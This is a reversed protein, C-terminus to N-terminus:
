LLLGFLVDKDSEAQKFATQVSVSVGGGEPSASLVPMFSTIFNIAKHFLGENKKM